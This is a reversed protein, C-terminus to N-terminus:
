FFNVIDKFEELLSQDIGEWGNPVAVSDTSVANNKQDLVDLLDDNRTSHGKKLKKKCDNEHDENEEQIMTAGRKQGYIAEAEPSQTLMPDRGTKLFPSNIQEGSSGTTPSFADLSGSAEAEVASKINAANMDETPESPKRVVDCIVNESLFWIDDDDDVLLDKFSPAVGDQTLVGINLNGLRNSPALAIKADNNLLTSPSPLDDLSSDGYESSPHRRDGRLFGPNLDILCENTYKEHFRKSSSDRSDKLNPFKSTVANSYQRRVDVSSKNLGSPKKSAPQSLDIVEIIDAKNVKKGSKPTNYSVPTDKKLSASITM